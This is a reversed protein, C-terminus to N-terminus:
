QSFFPFSATAAKGRGDRVVLHVRYAGTDNPVTLVAGSPTEQAIAGPVVLGPERGVQVKKGRVRALNVDTTVSWDFTVPDGDPDTAALTIPFITGRAKREGAADCAIASIVPARNEPERGTWARVMADLANVAEGTPLFIGFWTASYEQKHGWLFVYSGLCWGPQGSVAAEYSRRYHDAKEASSAEFSAGWPTQRSEWPGMPGFETVVYPKTWGYSRLREPLFPCGGYSNVGLLDLDPCHALLNRVKTEGVDATVTMVPHLTDVEHIMKVVDNVALWVRSDREDLGMEMENGASWMLIAPHDKVALVQARMKALQTRVATDRDYRFGHEKHGLWLGVTVSLGAAHAADLLPRINEAGWTRISNGGLAALTDLRDRGGAGLIYYPLGNRLLTYGSDSRIIVVHSPRAAPTDAASAASTDTRAPPPPAAPASPPEGSGCSVSVLLIPLILSALKRATRPM